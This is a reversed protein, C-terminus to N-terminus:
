QAAKREYVVKGDILVMEVQTFTELPQGSLIVIDADKGVELSGIRDAVGLIEAPTLTIARLAVNKDMGNAVVMAAASAVFKSSAGDRGSVGLAVTVGGKSLIAANRMDHNRYELKPMDVFSTSIPAVIVPVQRRAIEGVLMYGETCKDLILRLDFEDALRLANLIDDVRHAEIQLPIKKQLVQALIEYTPNRKPKSPRKPKKEKKKEWDKRSSPFVRMALGWDGIGQSVKVLCPNAGAKLDVKFLDQDLTVGRSADNRHVEKGNAWVVVGDDSGLGIEAASTTASNLFCFAYVVADTHNGVAELFNLIDSKSKYRKWTLKQEEKATVTNGEQPNIVKAEGGVDTLFDTTLDSPSFPGLVLWEKIYKGATAEGMYETLEQKYKKKQRMYAQTEILAERISAYHELRTLSSSQNNASVGIAAEVAIDAKLLMENATKSGNIKLVASKGGLLSRNGPAVYISTVGQALVEQYEKIFPDLADLIDLEPAIARRENLESGIVYLRSQADVFGPMVFKDNADIIQADAPIDVEQGLAKIKGEEILIIGHEIADGSITLINGAQIVINEAQLINALVCLLFLSLIIAICKIM